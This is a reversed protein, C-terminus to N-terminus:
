AEAVPPTMNPERGISRKMDEFSKKVWAQRESADECKKAHALHCFLAIKTSCNTNADRKKEQSGGQEKTDVKIRGIHHWFVETHIYGKEAMRQLGKYLLSNEEGEILKQREPFNCPVKLDPMILVVRPSEEARVFNYRLDGYVKEWMKAEEKATEIGFSQRYFKIVCPACSFCCSGSLGYGLQRLSFLVTHLRTPKADFQLGCSFQIQKFASSDGTLKIQRASCRSGPASLDFPTKPARKLSEDSLLVFSVLLELVKRNEAEVSSFSVPETAYFKREIEEEEIHLQVRGKKSKGKEKPPM